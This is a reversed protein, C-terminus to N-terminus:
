VLFHRGVHEVAAVKEEEFATKLQTLIQVHKEMPMEEERNEAAQTKQHEEDLRDKFQAVESQLANCAIEMEERAKETAKEVEVEGEGKLKAELATMKAEYEDQLEIRLAGIAEEKEKEVKKRVVMEAEEIKDAIEKNLKEIEEMHSSELLQKIEQELNGKKEVYEQELLRSIEEKEKQFKAAMEEAIMEKQKQVEALDSDKNDIIVKLEMVEQDKSLLDTELDSKVKELEVEHELILSKKTEEVEGVWKEKLDAIKTQMEQQLIDNQEITSKLQKQYMEIEVQADSLRNKEIDLTETLEKLQNEFETRLAKLTTEREEEQEREFKNIMSVLKCTTSNMYIQFEDKDKQFQKEMSLVECKLQLISKDALDHLQSFNEEVYTLKTKNEELLNCQQEIEKDKNDLIAMKDHIIQQLEAVRRTPPSETMSSPMSEDIFFDATTFGESNIEELDPSTEPSSKTDLKDVKIPPIETHKQSQPKGPSIRAEGIPEPQLSLFEDDDDDEEEEGAKRRIEENKEEELVEVSQSVDEEAKESQKMPVEVESSDDKKQQKAKPEETFTLKGTETADLIAGETPLLVSESDHNLIVIDSATPDDKQFTLIPSNPM